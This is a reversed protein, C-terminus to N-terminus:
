KNDVIKIYDVEKYLRDNLSGVTEGTKKNLFYKNCGVSVVTWVEKTQKNQIVAGMKYDVAEM